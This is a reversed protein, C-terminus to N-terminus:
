RWKNDIYKWKLKGWAILETQEPLLESYALVIEDNLTENDAGVPANLSGVINVPVGSTSGPTYITFARGSKYAAVAPSDINWSALGDQWTKAQQAAFEDVSVGAKQADSENVWPRFDAAGFDPFTLLLNTLDGKPDIIIAPIDANLAEELLVVGLGTKGSGTMGVIVGHTTFDATAIKVEETTRKRTVPDILAGIRLERQAM